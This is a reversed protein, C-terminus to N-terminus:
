KRGKTVTTTTRSQREKDKKQRRRHFETAGVLPLAVWAKCIVM